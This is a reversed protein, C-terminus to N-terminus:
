RYNPVTCNPVTAIARSYPVRNYPIPTPDACRERVVRNYYTFSTRVIISMGPVIDGSQSPELSSEVKLSFEDSVGRCRDRLSDASVTIPRTSYTRNAYIKPRPVTHIKPLVVNM